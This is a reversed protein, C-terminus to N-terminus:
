SIIASNYLRVGKLRYTIAMRCVHFDSCCGSPLKSDSAPVLSQAACNSKLVPKQMRDTGRVNDTM